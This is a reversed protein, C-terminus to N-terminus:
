FQFYIFESSERIGFILMAVILLGAVIGRPVLSLRGLVNLEGSRYQAFDAVVLPASFTVLKLALDSTEGSETLGLHTLYYHIQDLSNSRFLIWGIVTLAFMIGIQAWRGFDAVLGKLGFAPVRREVLRYAVLIGGQYAGWIVFNWSAGHWLGGLVMVIMLNRLTALEGSRNGGLPIYLYDRLWSSLSIHWRQWFESPNRSFYPLRFNLAIEFGMM